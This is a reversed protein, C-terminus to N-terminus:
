AVVKVNLEKLMSTLITSEQDFIENFYEEGSDSEVCWLGPTTITQLIKTGDKGHPIALEVSARVGVFSFDGNNYENLREEFGMDEQELYSADAYPDPVIEMEFASRSITIQKKM